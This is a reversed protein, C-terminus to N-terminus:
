AADAMPEDVGDFLDRQKSKEEAAALYRQAQLWYARKLESGVFRRGEEVSVVGVSGIGTFPDLVVDGPLSWLEVARRILGLQLPCIHKEDADHRAIRGNLVDMQDIDWWVPDAYRQWVAISQKGPEKKRAFQSPHGRNVRPDFAADGVFREFGSPRAIPKASMLSDAPPRRLAILYDPLGQRVQSSDREVTKHLLGNNNTREREVVPCKWVLVRSHYSWGHSEFLRICDGTFDKIGVTGDRGAYRPLDKVHMVCLRGPVTVRLLEPALYGFHRFFEDDGASNGMDAEAESYTYLSSFPPSFITLDISKDPIERCIEVCDGLHLSWNQGAARERPVATLVRSGGDLTLGARTAKVMASRMRECDAEKRKISALVEGETEAIVVHAEVPQTQGFRWCRRVAQYFQEHSYSLGVFAMKRCHQWNLGYGAVTPKSLLVRMEGLPFGRLSSEKVAEKDSGRVEVATPLCVKLADAEYDTNCWVVWPEKFGDVIEAVKAARSAATLRMEKHIGTATLRDMPVITRQEGDRMDRSSLDVAVVHETITLPPLVFGDDSYGLDSPKDLCVAWSAIWRWYDAEAHHKLRYTGTEAQDNIFWRSLMEDSDMVGLFQAHNGLEMHDNPAPTATCALRWRTGAEAFAEILMRKTKGMYAKLISSEDLVVGSFKFPDFHGKLFKQYNTVVITGREFDKDSSCLKVNGIGFRAAEAVTQPGVALPTLILVNGLEQERVQDAWALQMLTKGLGCGAFIAARGLRCAWRVIDAQWPFLASPLSGPEFGAPSASVRKSKLFEQYDSM